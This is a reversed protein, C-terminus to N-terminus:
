ISNPGTTPLAGFECVAFSNVRVLCLREAAATPKDAIANERVYMYSRAHAEANM